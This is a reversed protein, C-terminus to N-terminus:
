TCGSSVTPWGEYETAWTGGSGTVTVKNERAGTITIYAHTSDTM